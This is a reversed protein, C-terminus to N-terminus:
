LFEEKSGLSKSSPRTSKPSHPITWYCWSILLLYGISNWKWIVSYRGWTGIVDSLPWQGSRVLPWGGSERFPWRRYLVYFELTCIEHTSLPLSFVWNNITSVYNIIFFLLSIILKLAKCLERVGHFWFHSMTSYRLIM